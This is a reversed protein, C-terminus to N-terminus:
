TWQCAQHSGDDDDDDHDDDDDDDDNDDRPPGATPLGWAQQVIDLTPVKGSLPRAYSQLMHM